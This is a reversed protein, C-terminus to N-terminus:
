DMWEERVVDILQFYFVHNNIQQLILADGGDM